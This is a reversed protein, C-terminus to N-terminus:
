VGGVLVQLTYPAACGAGATSTVVVEYRGSDDRGSSGAYDVYELEGAGNDDAEAVVGHDVGGGDVWRLELRYDADAPVDYLWVEVDFWSWDGDTAAFAYRDTDAAPFLYGWAFAHGGDGLDGLDAAASDNPEYPDGAFADDVEGNCDVDVGDCTTDAAGPHVAPDLPDCDDTTYGDGDADTPPDDWWGTDAGSEAGATDGTEDDDGSDAGSDYAASDVGGGGAPDEGPSACGSLTSWLVLLM